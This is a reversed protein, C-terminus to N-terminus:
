KRFIKFLGSYCYLDHTAKNKRPTLFSSAQRATGASSHNPKCFRFYRFFAKRRAQLFTRSTDREEFYHSTHGASPRAPLCGTFFRRRRRFRPVHSFYYFKQSVSIRRLLFVHSRAKDPDRRAVATYKETLYMDTVLSQETDRVRM